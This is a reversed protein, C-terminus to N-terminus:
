KWGMSVAMSSSCTCSHRLSFSLHACGGRCRAPRPTRRAHPLDTGIVGGAFPAPTQGRFCGWPAEEHVRQGAPLEPSLRTLHHSCLLGQTGVSRSATPGRGPRGHAQSGRTPIQGSGPQNRPEVLRRLCLGQCVRAGRFSAEERTGPAATCPGVPRGGCPRPHHAQLHRSAQGPAHQATIWAPWRCAERGTPKGPSM